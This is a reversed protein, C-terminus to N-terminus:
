YLNCGKCGKCGVLQVHKYWNINIRFIKYMFNYINKIGIILAYGINTINPHRIIINISSYNKGM